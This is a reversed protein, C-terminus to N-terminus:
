KRKTDNMTSKWIFANMANADFIEVFEDITKKEVNAFIVYSHFSSLDKDRLYLANNFHLLHDEDKVRLKPHKLVSELTDYDARNTEDEINM